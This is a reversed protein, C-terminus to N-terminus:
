YCSFPFGQLLSNLFTLPQGNTSLFSMSIKNLYGDTFHIYHSITWAILWVAKVTKYLWVIVDSWQMKFGQFFMYAMNLYGFSSIYNWFVISIYGLFQSSGFLPIYKQNWYRSNLQTIVRVTFMVTSSETHWQTAKFKSSCHLKVPPLCLEKAIDTNRIKLAEEM